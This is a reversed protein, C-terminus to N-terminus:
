HNEDWSDLFSDTLEAALDEALADLSETKGTSGYIFDNWIVPSTYPGDQQLWGELTGFYAGGSSTSTFSYLLNVQRKATTGNAQCPSDAVVIGAEELQDAIANYILEAADEDETDKIEVFTNVCVSRFNKLNHLQHDALATSFTLLASLSLLTTLRNM